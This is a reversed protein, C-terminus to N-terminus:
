VTNTILAFKALDVFSMKEERGLLEWNAFTCINNGVGLIKFVSFDIHVIGILLINSICECSVHLTLQRM